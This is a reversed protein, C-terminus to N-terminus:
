TVSSIMLGELFRGRAIMIPIGRTVNNYKSTLMDYKVTIDTGSNSSDGATAIVHPLLTKPAAAGRIGTNTAQEVRPAAFPVSKEVPRNGYTAARSPCWTSIREMTCVFCYVGRGEMTNVEIMAMKM